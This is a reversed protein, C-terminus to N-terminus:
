TRFERVFQAVAEPDGSRFAAEAGPATLLRSLRALLSLYERSKTPPILACFVTHAAGCRGFPRPAGFLAAAMRIDAGEAMRAHVIAFGPALAQESMRHAGALTEARVAESLDAADRLCADLLARVIVDHAAPGPTILRDRRLYDALNIM